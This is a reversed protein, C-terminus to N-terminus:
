NHGKKPDTQDAKMLGILTIGVLNARAEDSLEGIVKSKAARVRLANQILARRDETVAGKAQIAAVAGARAPTAPRAPKAAGPKASGQASKPQLAKGVAAQADKTLVVGAITKGIFKFM